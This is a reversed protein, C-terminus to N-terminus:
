FMTFTKLVVKSLDLCYNLELVSHMASKSDYKGVKNNPRNIHITDSLSYTFNLNLREKVDELRILVGDIATLSWRVEPSENVM